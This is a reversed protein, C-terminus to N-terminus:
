KENEKQNPYILSYDTADVKIDFAINFESRTIEMFAKEPNKVNIVMTYIDNKDDYLDLRIKALGKVIREDKM